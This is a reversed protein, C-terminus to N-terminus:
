DDYRDLILTAIIGGIAMIVTYLIISEQDVIM